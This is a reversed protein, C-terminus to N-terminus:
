TEAASSGVCEDMTTKNGYVKLRRETDMTWDENTTLRTLIKKQMAKANRYWPRTAGSISEGRM